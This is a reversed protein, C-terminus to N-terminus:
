GEAEAEMADAENVWARVQAVEKGYGKLLIALRKGNEQKKIKDLEDTLGYQAAKLVVAVPTAVTIKLEAIRRAGLAETMKRYSSVDVKLNNLKAAMQTVATEYGAIKAKYKASQLWKKKKKAIQATIEAAFTKARDIDAGMTQVLLNTTDDYAKFAAGMDGRAGEISHIFEGVKPDMHAQLTSNNWIEIKAGQKLAKQKLYMFLLEYGGHVRGSIQSVSTARAQLESLTADGKKEIADALTALSSLASKLKGM